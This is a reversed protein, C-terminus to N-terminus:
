NAINSISVITMLYSDIGPETVTVIGNVAPTSSAFQLINTTQSAVSDPIATTGADECTVGIKNSGFDKWQGTCTGDSSTESYTGNANFTATMNGESDSVVAIKGSVFSAILDSYNSIVSNLEYIGSQNIVSVAAGNGLTTYLRHYEVSNDTATIKIQTAYEIIWTFNETYEVTGGSLYGTEIGTGNANYAYVVYSGDSTDTIRYTKNSLSETTVYNYNYSNNYNTIENIRTVVQNSDITFVKWMDGSGTFGETPATFQYRSGDRTILEVSTPSAGMNSSGSFHHLKFEFPGSTGDCITTTEPGYSDTDDLDLSAVVGTTACPNDRDAPIAGFFKNMFSIQTNNFLLHSDVDSPSEGWRVIITAFATTNMSSSTNISLLDLNIISTTSLVTVTQYKTSYGDKSLEFTYTGPLLSLISATDSNITNLITGLRNNYGNRVNVTIGSLSTGNRSDTINLTPTVPTSNLTETETFMVVNLPDIDEFSNYNQTVATYGTKTYTIVYERYKPVSLTYTGSATSTTIAEFNTSENRLDISVTVGDLSNGASDKVTNSIDQTIEGIIDADLTELISNGLRIITDNNNLSIDMSDLLGDYGTHDASFPNSFPNSSAFNNTPFATTLANTLISITANLATQLASINSLGSLTGNNCSAYTSTISTNASNRSANDIAYHTLPTINAVSDGSSTDIFSYMTFGLPSSARLIFPGAYSSMDGSQWAGTSDSTTSIVECTPVNLIQIQSAVGTGIAVTGGITTAPTITLNLAASQTGITGASNQYAYTIAYTGQTLTVTPTLIGTVSDYTATAVVGNVYLVASTVSSPLVGINFGPTTDDTISATSATSQITGINDVYSPITSAEPITTVTPTTPTETTTSSTSSSGGGGCGVLFAATLTSLVLGNIKKM